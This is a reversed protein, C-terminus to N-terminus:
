EALTGKNRSFNLHFKSYILRRSYSILYKACRDVIWTDVDIGHKRSRHLDINTTRECEDRRMENERSVIEIREHCKRACLKESWNICWPEPGFSTEPSKLSYLASSTADGLSKWCRAIGLVSILFRSPASFRATSDKIIEQIRTINYLAAMARRRSAKYDPM